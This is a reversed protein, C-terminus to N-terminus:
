NLNHLRELLPASIKTRERILVLAEAERLRKSTRRHGPRSRELHHSRTRGIKSLM